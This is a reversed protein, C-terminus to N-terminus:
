LRSFCHKKVTANAGLVVTVTHKKKEISTEGRLDADFLLVTKERRYIIGM